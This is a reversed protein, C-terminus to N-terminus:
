HPPYSPDYVDHEWSSLEGIVRELHFLANCLGITDIRGQYDVGVREMRPKDMLCMNLKWQVVCLRWMIADFDLVEAYNLM